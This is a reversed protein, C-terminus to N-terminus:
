DKVSFFIFLTIRMINQKSDLEVYAHIICIGTKYFESNFKKLVEKRSQNINGVFM